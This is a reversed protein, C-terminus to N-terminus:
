RILWLSTIVRYANEIYGVCQGPKFSQRSGYRTWRTGYRIDSSLGHLTDDIVIEGRGIRDIRGMGTFRKPYYDPFIEGERLVCEGAFVPPFFGAGPEVAWLVLWAVVAFVIMRNMVRYRTTPLENEM